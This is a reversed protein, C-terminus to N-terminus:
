KVDKKREKYNEKNRLATCHLWVARVQASVATQQCRPQMVTCLARLQTYSGWRTAANHWEPHQRCSFRSHSLFYFHHLLFLFSIQLVWSQSLTFLSQSWPELFFLIFYYYIAVPDGHSRVLGAACFLKLYRSHSSSFKLSNMPLPTWYSPNILFNPRPSGNHPFKCNGAGGGLVKNSPVLLGSPEPAPCIRHWSWCLWLPLLTWPKKKM